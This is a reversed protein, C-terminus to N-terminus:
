NRDESKICREFLLIDECMTSNAGVGGVTLADKGIENSYMTVLRWGQFAHKEITEAVKNRDTTGDSNNRIVIYDYEYYPNRKYQELRNNYIEAINKQSLVVENNFNYGCTSCLASEYAVRKQCIPCIKQVVSNDDDIRDKARAIKSDLYKAVINITDINYNKASLEEIVSEKIEILESKYPQIRVTLLGINKGCVICSKAM